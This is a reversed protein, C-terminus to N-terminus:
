STPLAKSVFRDHRNKQWCEENHETCVPLEQGYSITSLRKADIGLTVLYDKATQARKAGLALNYDATGREDCHGEIQISAAPNQKLWDANGQLTSRADARLNYRDFDFYIDKLPSSPPTGVPTGKQLQELSSAQSVPASTLRKTNAQSQASQAAAPPQTPPKTTSCAFIFLLGIGCLLKLTLKLAHDCAYRLSYM